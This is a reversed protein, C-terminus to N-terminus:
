ILLAFKGTSYSVRIYQGYIFAPHVTRGTMEMCNCPTFLVSIILVGSFFLSIVFGKLRLNERELISTRGYKVILCVINWYQRSLLETVSRRLRM